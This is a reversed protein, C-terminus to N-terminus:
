KYGEPVESQLGFRRIMEHCLRTLIGVIHTSSPVAGVFHTFINLGSECHKSEVYEHIVAAQSSFYWPLLNIHNLSNMIFLFVCSGVVFM